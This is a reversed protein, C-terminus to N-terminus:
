RGLRLETSDELRYGIAYRFATLRMYGAAIEVHPITQASAPGGMLAIGAIVAFCKAHTM